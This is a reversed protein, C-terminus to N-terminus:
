SEPKQLAGLINVRLDSFLSSSKVLREYVMMPYFLAPSAKSYSPEKEITTLVIASLGVAQALKLIRIRTNAAYVTPYPDHADQELGRLRNALRLHAGHGLIKSGWTVYHWLNPTRFCYVGSPRLVRAVERFHRQPGTLHELVYDSVCAGFSADSFPLQNGDYVKAESLWPNSLVENSVDVGVVSAFGAM